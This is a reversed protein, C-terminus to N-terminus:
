DALAERVAARTKDLGIQAVKAPSQKWYEHNFLELSLYGRFGTDRLTTFIQKLPAVGDGPFVRHADTIRDRPPAAPYDNVHILPLAGGNLLRLGSFESGGKHLHYLDLLMAADPQGCETAVFAVEGLRSLNKSFGWLEVIPTVGMQRGIELLAGYREAAKFLDIPAAGAEHVGVPPAAIHAGGIRTVKEMDRKMAELGKARRSDDDVIWETFGIADAVVLGSDSFRNKLDGLTGGKKEYEELERIWPEIADYECRAAIEIEEVIGLNAGSITSTNLCYGFPELPGRSRSAPRTSPSKEDAMAHHELQPIIAVVALAASLVARRSPSTDHDDLRDPEQSLV